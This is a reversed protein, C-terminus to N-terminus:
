AHYISYTMCVDDHTMESIYKEGKQAVNDQQTVDQILLAAGLVVVPANAIFYSMINHRILGYCM